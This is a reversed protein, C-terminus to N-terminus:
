GHNEASVFLNVYNVDTGKVKTVTITKGMM